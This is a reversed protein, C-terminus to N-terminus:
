CPMINVATKAVNNAHGMSQLLVAFLCEKNLLICKKWVAWRRGIVQSM